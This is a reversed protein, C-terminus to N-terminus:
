ATTKIFDHYAKIAGKITPKAQYARHTNTVYWAKGNIISKWVAPSEKGNPGHHWVADNSMVLEREDDTLPKKNKKLTKMEPSEMLLKEGKYRIDYDHALKIIFAQRTLYYLKNEPQLEPLESSMIDGLLDEIYELDFFQFGQKNKKMLVKDAVDLIKKLQPHIEDELFLNIRNGQQLKKLATLFPHERKLQNSYLSPDVDDNMKPTKPADKSRIQWRKVSGDNNHINLRDTEPIGAGYGEEFPENPNEIAVPANILSMRRKIEVDLKKYQSIVYELENNRDPTKSFAKIFRASKEKLAKLNDLTLNSLDYDGTELDFKDVKPHTQNIDKYNVERVTM